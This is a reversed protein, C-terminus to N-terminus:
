VGMRVAEMLPLRQGFGSRTASDTPGVWGLGTWDVVPIGSLEGVHNQASSATIPHTTTLFRLSASPLYSPSPLTASLVLILYIHVIHVTSRM